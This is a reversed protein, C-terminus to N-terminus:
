CEYLKAIKKDIETELEQLRAQDKPPLPYGCRDYLMLIEDVLAVITPQEEASAPAIPLEKWDDPYVHIKSRRRVDIWAKAFSSNMVALVYKLKFRRSIPEREERDGGVSQWGYKATKSISANM